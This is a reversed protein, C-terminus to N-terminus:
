ENAQSSPMFTQEFELLDAQIASQRELLKSRRDQLLTLATELELKETTWESQDFVLIDLRNWLLKLKPKAVESVDADRSPMKIESFFNM